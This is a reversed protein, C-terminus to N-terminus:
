THPYNKRKVTKIRLVLTICKIVENQINQVVMDRNEKYGMKNM